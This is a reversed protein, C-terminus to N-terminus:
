QGPQICVLFGLAKAYLFSCRAQSVHVSHTVLLSSSSSTLKSSSEQTQLGLPCLFVSPTLAQQWVSGGKGCRGGVDSVSTVAQCRPSQPSPLWALMSPPYELCCDKRGLFPFLLFGPAEAVNLGFLKHHLPHLHPWAAPAGSVFTRFLPWPM